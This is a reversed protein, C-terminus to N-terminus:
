QYLRRNGVNRKNAKVRVGDARKDIVANFEEGAVEVIINIPQDNGSGGKIQVPVAGNQLPIFAEPVEGVFAFTPQNVIGGKEFKPVSNQFALQDSLDMDAFQIQELPVNHTPVEIIVPTPAFDVSSSALHVTVLGDITVSLNDAQTKLKQLETRVGSLKLNSNKTTTNLEVLEDNTTQSEKFIKESFDNSQVFSNLDNMDKMVQEYISQYQESSKFTDQAIQLYQSAFSLYENLATEDGGKAAALLENYDPTLEKLKETPLAVNLTGARIDRQASLISNSLSEVRNAVELWGDIVKMEEAQAQTALGYWENVYGMAKSFQDETLEPLTFLRDIEQKVWTERSLGSEQFELDEFLKDFTTEKLKNMQDSLANLSKLYDISNKTLDEMEEKLEETQQILNGEADYLSEIVKRAEEREASLANEENTEQRIDEEMANITQNMSELAKELPTIEGRLERLYDVVTIEKIQNAVERGMERLKDFEDHMNRTNEMLDEYTGKNDRIVKAIDYFIDQTDKLAKDLSTSSDDLSETHEKGSKIADNITNIRDREAKIEADIASKQINLALTLKDVPLINSDIIAQLKDMAPISDDEVIKNVEKLTDEFLNFSSALARMGEESTEADKILEEMSKGFTNETFAQRYPSAGEGGIRKTVDEFNEGEGILLGSGAIAEVFGEFLESSAKTIESIIKEYATLEQSLYTDLFDQHANEIDKYVADIQVTRFDQQAKFLKQQALFAEHEGKNATGTSVAPNDEYFALQESQIKYLQETWRTNQYNSSTQRRINETNKEIAMTSENLANTLNEYYRREEDSKSFMSSIQDGLLGGLVGVGAGAVGGVVSGGVTGIAQGIGSSINSSALSTAISQGISKSVTSSILDGLVNVFSSKIYDLAGDLGGEIGAKLGRTFSEGIADATKSIERNTKRLNALYLKEGRIKAAALDEQHKTTAKLIKVDAAYIQQNDLLEDHYKNIIGLAKAREDNLIKVAATNDKVKKIERDYFDNIAKRDKKEQTMLGMKEMLLSNVKEQIPILDKEFKNRKEIADLIDLEDQKELTVGPAKSLSAMKQIHAEQQKFRKKDEEFLLNASDLNKKNNAIATNALLTQLRKSEEGLKKIESSIEKGKKDTGFIGKLLDPVKEVSQAKENLKQIEEGIDRIKQQIVASQDGAVVKDYLDIDIGALRGITENVSDTFSQLGKIGISTVKLLAATLKGLNVALLLVGEAAEVYSEKNDRIEKTFEEVLDKVSSADKGFADLAVSEVASKLNHFAGITTDRMANALKENAGIDSRINAELEQISGSLDDTEGVMDKLVLVARGGRGAFEKMIENVGWKSGEKNMEKLLDVLDGEKGMKAMTKQARLMAQNLQTGAMSSQIGADHLKGLLANTREIDYGLAKATPAVYKFSEALSRVTSNSRTTTAIFSDNIRSLSEAGLGFATMANSAIDASEGLELSASTALNLVSPLAIIAETAQIGAMTLFRLGEAAQTATFETTEGLRKAVENMKEFENTTARSVGQVIKMTKEFEAGITVIGKVIQAVALASGIGVLTRKFSLASNKMKKFSNGTKDATKKGKNGLQDLKKNVKDMEAYFSKADLGVKLDPM